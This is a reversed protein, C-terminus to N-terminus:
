RFSVGSMVLSVVLLVAPIGWGAALAGYMFGNGLSRQWCIQLHLFLARMFVWMVGALGGALIFTGSVACIRSSHMDNPTIADACQDPNAALPVIFGLQLLTLGIALCISLYHRHTKEVPLAAWSLLLFTTCVIGAVNLWSAANTITAFNDPYLFATKPCPLCCVDTGIAECFRGDLDLSRSDALVGRLLIPSLMCGTSSNYDAASLFPTGCVSAMISSNSM